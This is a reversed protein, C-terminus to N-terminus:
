RQQDDSCVSKDEWEGSIGELWSSRGNVHSQIKKNCFLTWEVSEGGNHFWRGGVFKLQEFHFLFKQASIEGRIFHWAHVSKRWNTMTWTGWFLERDEIMKLYNKQLGSIQFQEELKTMVRTKMQIIWWIMLSKRMNLFSKTPLPAPRSLPFPGSCYHSNSLSLLHLYNWRIFRVARRSRPFRIPRPSRLFFNLDKVLKRIMWALVLTTVM